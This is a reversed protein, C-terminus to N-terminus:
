WHYLAEADDPHESLYADVRARADEVRGEALAIMADRQDWKYGSADGVVIVALATAVITWRKASM